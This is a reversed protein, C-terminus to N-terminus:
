GSEDVRLLLLSASRAKAKVSDRYSNIYDILATRNTDSMRYLEGFLASCDTCVTLSLPPRLSHTARSECRQTVSM